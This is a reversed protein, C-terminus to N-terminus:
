RSTMGIPNVTVELLELEAYAYEGSSPAYRAEGTAFLQYTGFQRYDRVPTSWRQANLTKGDEALAPRDDSWFNV